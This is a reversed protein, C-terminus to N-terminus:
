AFLLASSRLHRILIGKTIFHLGSIITPEAHNRNLRIATRFEEIAGDLHGKKHLANGLNYHAIADNPNLSIATRSEVIARDLDEKKQFESKPDFYKTADDRAANLAHGSRCGSSVVVIMGVGILFVMLPDLRM